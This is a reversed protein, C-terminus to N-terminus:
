KQMTFQLMLGIGFLIIIGAGVVILTGLIGRQWGKIDDWKRSLEYFKTGTIFETLFYIFPLLPLGIGLGNFRTGKSAEWMIWAILPVGLLASILMGLLAKFRINKTDNSM